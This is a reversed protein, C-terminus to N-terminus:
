LPQLGQKMRRQKKARLLMQEGPLMDHDSDTKADRAAYRAAQRPDHVGDLVGSALLANEISHERSQRRPQSQTSQRLRQSDEASRRSRRHLLNTAEEVVRDQAAKAAAERKAVNEPLRWQRAKEREAQIRKVRRRKRSGDRWKYFYKVSLSYARYNRAEAWSKEEEERRRREEEAQHYEDWIDKLLNEVLLPELHTEMLGKDGCVIWRTFNDM